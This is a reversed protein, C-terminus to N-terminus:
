YFTVMKRLFRYKVINHFLFHDLVEEFNFEVPTFVKLKKFGITGDGPNQKQIRICKSFTTNVDM